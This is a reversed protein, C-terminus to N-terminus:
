EVESIKQLIQQKARPDLIEYDGSVIEKIEDLTQILKKVKFPTISRYVKLLNNEKELEYIIGGAKLTEAEQDLLNARLKINEAKLVDVEQEKAQIQEQLENAIKYICPEKEDCWSCDIGECYKKIQKDTM